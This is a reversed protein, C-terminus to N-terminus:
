LAFGEGPALLRVPHGATAPIEIRFCSHGLFTIKM